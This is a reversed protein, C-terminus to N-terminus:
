HFIGIIGGPISEAVKRNAARSRLWQAVAHGRFTFNCALILGIDLVVDM